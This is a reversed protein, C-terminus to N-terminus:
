HPAPGQTVQALDRVRLWKAFAARIEGAGLEAYREAARRPEDLPLGLSARGLLGAAVADVSAQSLPIANLALSKAQRLERVSVPETQMARLDHEIIERARSVNAADCAYRALYVARTRGVQFSSGVYYVLGSNKRLDRYLRSAYFGGGL